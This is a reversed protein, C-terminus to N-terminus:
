PTDGKGTNGKDATGFVNVNNEPSKLVMPDTFHMEIAIGNGSAAKAELYHSATGGYVNRQQCSM